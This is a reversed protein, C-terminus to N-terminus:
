YTATTKETAKETAEAREGRRRARYPLVTNAPSPPAEGMTPPPNGAPPLAQTKGPRRM